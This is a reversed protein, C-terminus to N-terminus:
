IIYFIFLVFYGIDYNIRIRLNNGLYGVKRFLCCIRPVFLKGLPFNDSVVVTTYLPINFLHFINIKIPINELMHFM